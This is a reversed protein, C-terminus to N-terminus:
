KMQDKEWEYGFKFAREVHFWILGLLVVPVFLVRMFKKRM